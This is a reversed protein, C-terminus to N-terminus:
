PEDPDGHQRLWNTVRMVVTALAETGILTGKALGYALFFPIMIPRVASIEGSPELQSEPNADVGIRSNSGIGTPRGGTSRIREHRGRIQDQKRATASRQKWSM